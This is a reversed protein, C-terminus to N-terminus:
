MQVIALVVVNAVQGDYGVDVVALGRQYVRQQFLALDEPVVLLHTRQYHVGVRKFPLATNGDQGLISGDGVATDSDINDVRRSVGIEAALHFPDHIHGVAAEQQHVGHVAGHRLGGIHQALGELLVDRWHDDDVLDVAGLGTRRLYHLHYLVQEQLQSRSRFM